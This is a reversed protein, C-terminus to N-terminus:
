AGFQVSSFKKAAADASALTVGAGDTRIQFEVDGVGAFARVPILVAVLLAMVVIKALTKKM